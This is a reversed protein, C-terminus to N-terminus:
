TVQLCQRVLLFHYCLSILIISIENSYKCLIASCIITIHENNAPNEMATTALKKIESVFPRKNFLIIINAVVAALKKKIVNNEIVLIIIRVVSPYGKLTEASSKYKGFSTPIIEKIKPIIEKIVIIENDPHVLDFFIPINVV